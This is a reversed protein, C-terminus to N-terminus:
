LYMSMKKLSILDVSTGQSRINSLQDSPFAGLEIKKGSSGESSKKSSKDQNCSLLTLLILASILGIRLQM